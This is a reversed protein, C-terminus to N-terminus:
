SRLTVSAIPFSVEVGDRVAIVRGDEQRVLIGLVRGSPAVVHTHASTNEAPVLDETPATTGLVEPREAGREIAQALRTKASSLQAQAPHIEIRLGWTQGRLVEKVKAPWRAAGTARLRPALGRPVFGLLIGDSTEVKVADPDHPNNNDVEVVVLDGEIVERLEAQRFSVGAVATVAPLPIASM